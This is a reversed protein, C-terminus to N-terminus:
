YLFKNERKRNLFKLHRHMKYRQRNTANELYNRIKKPDSVSFLGMKKPEPKIHQIDNGNKENKEIQKHKNQIHNKM